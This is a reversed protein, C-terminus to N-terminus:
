IRHCQLVAAAQALMIVSETVDNDYSVRLACVPRYLHLCEAGRSQASLFSSAEEFIEKPVIESTCGNPMKEKFTIKNKEEKMLQAVPNKSRNEARYLM